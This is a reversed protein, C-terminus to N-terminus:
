QIHIAKVGDYVEFIMLWIKMFWPVMQVHYYTNKFFFDKNDYFSSFSISGYVKSKQMEFEETIFHFGSYRGYLTKYPNYSFVDERGPM